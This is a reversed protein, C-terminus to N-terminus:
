AAEVHLQALRDLSRGSLWEHFEARYFQRQRETIGQNAQFEMWREHMWLMFPTQNGQENKGQETTTYGFEIMFAAYYPQILEGSADQFNDLVSAM